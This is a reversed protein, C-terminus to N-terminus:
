IYYNLTKKMSKVSKTIDEFTIKDLVKAMVEEVDTWIESFVSKNKIASEAKPLLPGGIELLVKGLSIQAPPKALTYGGQRGRISKVLGSRKLQNLIQVLYKVPMDEESAIDQMKTIKKNNTYNLSLVLLTRCSYDIRASIRM